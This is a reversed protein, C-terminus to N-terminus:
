GWNGLASFVAVMKTFLLQKNNFCKKKSLNLLSM